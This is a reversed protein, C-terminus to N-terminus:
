RGRLSPMKVGFKKLLNSWWTWQFYESELDKLETGALMSGIQAQQHGIKGQKFALDADLGKWQNSNKIDDAGGYSEWGRRTAERENKQWQSINGYWLKDGIYNNTIAKTRAEEELVDHQAKMNNYQANKLQFDQFAGIMALPDVPPKYNYSMTPANYKPMEAAQTTAGGSGYVLNPNLGADKLRKMQNDPLNYENQRNWAEVDKAYSYEALEKNAKNTSDTNNKSNGAGILNSAISGIGAAIGAGLLSM